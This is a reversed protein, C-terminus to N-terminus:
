SIGFEIPTKIRNGDADILCFTLNGKIYHHILVRVVENISSFGEFNAKKILANKMNISIPVQLKTEKVV